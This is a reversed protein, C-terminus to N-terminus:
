IDKYRAIGPEILVERRGHRQDPITDKDGTLKNKSLHLFRLNDYGPDNVKGIGLMWEAEAQKSTKANAVNAMTLWRVGEGTGDAQTVAIWPCYIVSLDRAWQYNAGLKLDERDNEFGMIKDQQDVIVLSPKYKKCLAEVKSKSIPGTKDAGIFKLKNNTRKYYEETWRKPDSYMAILDIGLCAQYCRKVVRDTPGENNFWLIPGDEDRLQEAMYTVESALFTTKGTEPRAFIFGFDGKRLSGLMQNMTNLRWRLGPTSVADDILIQLDDTVFDQSSELAGLSDDSSKGCQEMLSNLHEVNDSRGEAVEYSLLSIEKLLRQRHLSKILQSTTTTSADCSLINDVIQQTYEKNKVPNSFVLNALDSASLIPNDGNNGSHYSSVVSYIGQLEKPFDEVSLQDRVKSWHEYTLIHKLISIEPVVSV